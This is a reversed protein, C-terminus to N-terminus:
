LNSDKISLIHKNAIAPPTAAINPTPVICILLPNFIISPTGLLLNVHIIITVIITIVYIIDLMVPISLPILHIDSLFVFNNIPSITKINTNPGVDNISDRPVCDKPM